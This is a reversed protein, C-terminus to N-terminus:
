TLSGKYQSLKNNIRFAYFISFSCAHRRTDIHVLCLVFFNRLHFIVCIKLTSEHQRLKILIESLRTSLHFHTKSIYDTRQIHHQVHKGYVRFWELITRHSHRLEHFPKSTLLNSHFPILYSNSLTVIFM